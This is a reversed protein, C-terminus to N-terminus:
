TSDWIFQTEGVNNNCAAAGGYPVRDVAKDDGIRKTGACIDHPRPVPSPLQTLGSTHLPRWFAWSRKDGITNSTKPLDGGNSVGVCSYHRVSSGANAPM